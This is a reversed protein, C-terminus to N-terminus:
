VNVFAFLAACYSIIILVKLLILFALLEIGWMIHSGGPTYYIPLLLVVTCTMTLQKIILM